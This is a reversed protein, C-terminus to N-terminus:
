QEYRDGSMAVDVTGNYYIENDKDLLTQIIISVVNETSTKALFTREVKYIEKKNAINNRL